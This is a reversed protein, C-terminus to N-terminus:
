KLWVEDVFEEIDGMLLEPLELAAFHGGQIM